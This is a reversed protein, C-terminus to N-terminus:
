EMMPLTGEVLMTGTTPLTDVLLLLLLSSKTAHSQVKAENSKANKFNKRAVSASVAVFKVVSAESVAPKLAIAKTEMMPLTGVLLTLIIMPLKGMLLSTDTMPLTDMLLTRETM